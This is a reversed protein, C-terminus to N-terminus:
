DCILPRYCQKEPAPCILDGHRNEYCEPEVYECIRRGRYCEGRAYRREAEVAGIIGMGIIGTAVGAAFAAGRGRRAEAPETHAAIFATVLCLAVVLRFLLKM